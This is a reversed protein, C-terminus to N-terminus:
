RSVDIAFCVWRLRTGYSALYASHSEFDGSVGCSMRRELPASRGFGAVQKLRSSSGFFIYGNRDINYLVLFSEPTGRSPLCAPWVSSPGNKRVRPQLISSRLTGLVVAVKGHATHARHWIHTRSCHCLVFATGHPVTFLVVVVVIKGKKYRQSCVARFVNKCGFFCM